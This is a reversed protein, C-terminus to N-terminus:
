DGAASKRGPSGEISKWGTLSVALALARPRAWRIELAPHLKSRYYYDEIVCVTRASQAQHIDGCDRHFKSGGVTLQRARKGWNPCQFRGMALGQTTPRPEGFPDCRLGHRFSPNRGAVGWCGVSAARPRSVALGLSRRRGMQSLGAACVPKIQQISCHQHGRAM